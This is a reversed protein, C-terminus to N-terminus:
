DAVSVSVCFHDILWALCVHLFVGLLCTYCGRLIPSVSMSISTCFYFECFLFLVTDDVCFLVVFTVIVNVM